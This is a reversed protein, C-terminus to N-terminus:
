RRMYRLDDDAVPVNIHCDAVLGDVRYLCDLGVQCEKGPPPPQPRGIFVPDGAFFFPLLEEAVELTPLDGGPYAAACEASGADVFMRTQPAAHVPGIGGLPVPDGLDAVVEVGADGFGLAFAPEALDLAEPDTEGASLVLEGLDVAAGSVGARDVQSGRDGDARLLFVGGAM